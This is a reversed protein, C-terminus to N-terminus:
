KSFLGALSQNVRASRAVQGFESEYHDPQAYNDDWIGFTKTGNGFKGLYDSPTLGLSHLIGVWLRNIPQGPGIEGGTTAQTTREWDSFDYAKGLSLGGASNGAMLGSFGIGSHGHACESTMWVLTNDLYTQSGTEVTDLGKVIELFVEDAMWKHVARLQTANNAHAIFEHWHAVGGQSTGTGDLMLSSGIGVTAIKTSGCKIALVILKALDRYYSQVASGINSEGGINPAYRSDFTLSPKPMSPNQSPSSLSRHLESLSQMYEDLRRKDESGLRRDSKISNVALRLRDVVPAKEIAAAQSEFMADFIQSLNGNMTLSANNGGIGLGEQPRAPDIVDTSITGEGVRLIPFRYATKGNTYFNNSNALYEDLTKMPAWRRATGLHSAALNGLSNARGHDIRGPMDVGRYLALKSAYSNFKTDLLGSIQGRVSVLSSLSLDRYPYTGDSKQMQIALLDAPISRGRLDDPFVLNSPLQNPTTMVILRKMNEGAAQAESPLLSALYPAAFLGGVGKIFMRRSVPNFVVQDNRSTGRKM